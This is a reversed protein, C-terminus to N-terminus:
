ELYGGWGGEKGGGLFFCHMSARWKSALDTSAHLKMQASGEQRVCELLVLGLKGNVCKGFNLNFFLVFRCSCRLSTSLFFVAFKASEAGMVRVRRKAVRVGGAFASARSALSTASGDVGELAGM